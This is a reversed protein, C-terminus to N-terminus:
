NIIVPFVIGLKEFRPNMSWSQASPVPVPVLNLVSDCLPSSPPPASASLYCLSVSNVTLDSGGTLSGPIALPLSAPPLSPLLSSSSSSPLCLSCLLHAASSSFVPCRCVSSVILFRWLCITSSLAWCLLSGVLWRNLSGSSASHSLLVIIAGIPDTLLAALVGMRGLMTGPCLADGSFWCLHKDSAQGH